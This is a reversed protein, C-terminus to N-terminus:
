HTPYVGTPIKLQLIEKLSFSVSSSNKGNVRKRKGGSRSFTNIGELLHAEYTKEQMKEYHVGYIAFQEPLYGNIYLNYFAPILKRWALDGKGGFIVINAASTEKSKM